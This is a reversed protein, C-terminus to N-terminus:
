KQYGYYHHFLEGSPKDLPLVEIIEDSWTWNFYKKQYFFLFPKPKYNEM